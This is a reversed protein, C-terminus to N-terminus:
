KVIVKGVRVGQETLIKVIYIGPANVEFQASANLGKGSYVLSGKIDYAYLRDIPSKSVAFITNNESYLVVNEKLSEIGTGNTRQWKFVPYSNDLITWVDDFNWDLDQYFAEILATEDGGIVNAGHRNNTGYNPDTDSILDTNCLTSSLSYNNILSFSTWDMNNSDAIRLITGDTLSSALNVCNEINVPSDVNDAGILGL